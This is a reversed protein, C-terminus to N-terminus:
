NVGRVGAATCGAIKSSIMVSVVTNVLCAAVREAITRRRAIPRDTCSGALHAVGRGEAERSAARTAPILTVIACAMTRSEAELLAESEVLAVHNTVEFPNM